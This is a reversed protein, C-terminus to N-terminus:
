INRVGNQIFRKIRTFLTPKLKEQLEELTDAEAVPVFVKSYETYLISNVGVWRGGSKFIRPTNYNKVRFVIADPEIPEGMYKWLEDDM